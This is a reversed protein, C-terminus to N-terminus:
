HRVEKVSVLRVRGSAIVQGLEDTVQGEWLQTDQNRMLHKATVLLRASRAPRHFSTQNEVGVVPLKWRMAHLAAGVSAAAEVLGSYLAEDVTGDAKVYQETVVLEAVAEDATARLYKLGMAEAWGDPSKNLAAAYDRPPEDVVPWLRHRSHPRRYTPERVFLKDRRRL